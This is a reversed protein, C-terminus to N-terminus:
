KANEQKLAMAQQERVLKEKNWFERFVRVARSSAEITPVDPKLQISALSTVETIFFQTEKTQQRVYMGIRDKAENLSLHYASNDGRLLALQAQNLLLEINKALYDREASLLLPKTKVHKQYRVLSGLFDLFRAGFLEVGDEPM